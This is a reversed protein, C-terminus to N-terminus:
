DEDIRKILIRIGDRRNNQMSGNSLESMTIVQEAENNAEFEILAPMYTPMVLSPVGGGALPCTSGVIPPVSPIHHLMIQVRTFPNNPLSAPTVEIRKTGVIHIPGKLPSNKWIMPCYCPNLQLTINRNAIEKIQTRTGELVVTFEAGNNSTGNFILM